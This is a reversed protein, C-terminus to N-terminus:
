VGAAGATESADEGRFGGFKWGNLWSCNRSLSLVNASTLLHVLLGSAILSTSQAFLPQLQSVQFVTAHLPPQSFRTATFNLGFRFSAAPLSMSILSSKAMSISSASTLRYWSSM